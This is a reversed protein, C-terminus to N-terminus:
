ITNLKIYGINWNKKIKMEFFLFLKSKLKIMCPESIVNIKKNLKILFNNNKIKWSKLNKSVLLELNGSKSNKWSSYFMYFKKNFRLINPAYLFNNTASKRKILIKKIPQKLNKDYIRFFIKQYKKSYFIYNKKKYKFYFPTSLDSEREFPNVKSEKWVRLNKSQLMVIKSIKGKSKVAQILCFFNDKFQFLSPSLFSEFKEFKFYVYPILTFLKKRIKIKKIDLHYGTIESYHKNNKYRVACSFFYKKKFYFINPCLFKSINSKKSFLIQFLKEKQSKM